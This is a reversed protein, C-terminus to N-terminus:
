PLTAHVRYFAADAPANTDQLSLMGNNGPVAAAAGSWDMLNTSRELTYLWSPDSLLAVKGAAPSTLTGVPLPAAVVLDDVTGHALVSGEYGPFQGQDSYSSIAVTDVAFDGFYADITAEELPGVPVGNSTLTARLTQDAATFTMQVRYHTNTALELPFTFGGNWYNTTSSILATSVSAGYDNFDNPFYDFEVLNPSEGSGRALATNTVQTHQILGLAIEFSYPKGPDNSVTIDSLNLDFQVLFDNTRSLTQGLAHYFYSNPQSSDWTVRLNENTADWTFLNTNGYAQWGAAAPDTAFHTVLTAATLPAAALVSWLAALRRIVIQKM